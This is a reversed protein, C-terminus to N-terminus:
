CEQAHAGTWPEGDLPASMQELVPGISHNKQSPLWKPLDPRGEAVTGELEQKPILLNGLLPITLTGPGAASWSSSPGSVGARSALGGLFLRGGAQAVLPSHARYPGPGYRMTLSHWKHSAPLM